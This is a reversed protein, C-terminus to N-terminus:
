GTSSTNGGASSKPMRSMLSAFKNVDGTIRYGQIIVHRTTHVYLLRAMAKERKRKKEARSRTRGAYIPATEMDFDWSGLLQAHLGACHDVHHSAARITDCVCRSMCLDAMMNSGEARIQDTPNDKKRIKCYFSVKSMAGRRKLLRSPANGALRFHTPPILARSGSRCPWVHYRYRARTKWPSCLCTL